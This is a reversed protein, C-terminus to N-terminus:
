YYKLPGHIKYHIKFALYLLLELLHLHFGAGMVGNNLLKLPM